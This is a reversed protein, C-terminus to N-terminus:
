MSVLIGEHQDNRDADSVCDRETMDKEQLVAPTLSPHLLFFLLKIEEALASKKFVFFVGIRGTRTQWVNRYM